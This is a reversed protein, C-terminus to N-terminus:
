LRLGGNAREVLVGRQEPKLARVAPALRRRVQFTLREPSELRALLWDWAIEPHKGFIAELPYEDELSAVVVRQWDDSLPAPIEGRPAASWLGEAAAMAVAQSPHRLLLLVRDEPIEGRICASEIHGEAGPLEALAREVLSPPAQPNRIAVVAAIRRLDIRDASELCTRWADEWGEPQDTVVRELFPEVFNAPAGASLLAAIWAGPDSVAAAITNCALLSFDPWRLDARDAQRHLRVLLEASEGPDGSSLESAFARAAAAKAAYAAAGEDLDREPFLIALRPDVPADVTWGHEAALRALRLHVGAQDGVRLATEETIQGAFDQMSAATAPDPRTRVRPYLWDHILHELSPWDAEEVRGLIEQAVPWLGQLEVMEEPQLLGFRLTHRNGDVPDARMEEFVPSFAVALARCGVVPNWLPGQSWKVLVGLLKRRRGVAEPTGPEGAQVWDQVKRLPHNTASHLPRDDGISLTLLFPIALHPIEDLAPAAVYGILRPANVLAWGAEDPGLRAYSEWLEPDLRGGAMLGRLLADPVSDRRSKAGILTLVAQEFVPAADLLPQIPLAAPGEFFETSVLAHRLPPPIVALAGDFREVLVGGGALRAVAVRVDVIAIGLAGAVADAPMGAEGGVAFCALIPIAREGVVSELSRRVNRFLSGATVLERVGERLCLLALTVALGPLGAAQNLIEHILEDPGAIGCHEVVQAIELRSLQELQRIAASGVGLATAAADAESPWTNALIRFEAGLQTRLHRLRILFDPDLHADDVMVVPPQEARLSAAIRGMDRDIVFLGEDALALERFLFTKGSGPQGALVLDGETERLWRLDNERGVLPASALPRSSLPYVSLAPPDGTLGLLDRCWPPSPYLLDTFADQAHIQRVTFGLQKAAAELNRRRPPSLDQSTAVVVARRTGGESLYSAISRRLNDLVNKETTCILPLPPDDGDSIAGDMGADGGGRVPVLGPYIQRLLDAACQEFLDGDIKGQLGQEIDRYLPDRAM